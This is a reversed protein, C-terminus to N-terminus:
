SFDNETFAWGEADKWQYRSAYEKSEFYSPGQRNYKRMYDKEVNTQPDMNNINYSNINPKSSDVMAWFEDYPVERNYEDKLVDDSTMETKWDGYSMVPDDDRYGHFHFQWGGSQKGVHRINKSLGCEKCPSKHLYYNTGM